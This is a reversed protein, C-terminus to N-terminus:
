RNSISPFPIFILQTWKLAVIKSISGSQEKDAPTAESCMIEEVRAALMQCLHLLFSMGSSGQKSSGNTLVFM